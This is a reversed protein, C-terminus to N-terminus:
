LVERYNVNFIENTGGSKSCHRQTELYSFPTLQTGKRYEVQQYGLFRFKIKSSININRVDGLLSTKRSQKRYYCNLKPILSVLSYFYVEYFTLYLFNLITFPFFRSCKTLFQYYHRVKKLCKFVKSLLDKESLPLVIKDM